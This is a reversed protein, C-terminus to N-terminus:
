GLIIWAFTATSTTAAKNLVVQFTTASTRRAYRVYVGGGASAQLTVLILADSAIGGSAVTVTRTSHRKSVSARGSRSFTARGEVRLATGDAALHRALM